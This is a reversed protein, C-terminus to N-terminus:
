FYLTRGLIFIYFFVVIGASIIWRWNRHIELPEKVVKVIINTRFWRMMWLLPSLAGLVAFIGATVPLSFFGYPCFLGAMLIVIFSTAYSLICLKTASRIQEDENSGIIRGLEQLTLRIFLLFCLTGVIIMLVRWLWNPEWGNIVVAWDGINAIGSFIFYGAGYLWNMVMFLWFFFRIESSQKRLHRLIIWLLVGALLNFTPASGAVIKADLRTPSDCSEYLASYELLDGGVAVCTLAHVGEHFAVTVSISIAAISIVTLLDIVPKRKLMVQSM